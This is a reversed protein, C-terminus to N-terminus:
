YYISRFSAESLSSLIYSRKLVACAHGFPILSLSALTGKRMYCPDKTKVYLTEFEPSQKICILGYLYWTTRQNISKHTKKLVVKYLREFDTQLLRFREQKLTSLFSGSCSLVLLLARAGLPYGYWDPCGSLRVLTNMTRKIPLRILWVKKLRFVFVSWVPLIDLSVLTKVPRVPRNTQKTTNRSFYNLSHDHWWMKIPVSKTREIDYWIGM